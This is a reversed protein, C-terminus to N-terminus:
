QMDGTLIANLPAQAADIATKLAELRPQLERWLQPTHERMWRAKAGGHQALHATCLWCDLSDPVDAYHAPLTVRESDLFALVQADSWHWLPHRYELGDQWHDPGVGVRRDGRKAGRLVITEGAARMAGELPQWIMAACCAAYSQVLPGRPERLWSRAALTAEVPVLDSPLGQADIHEQVPRPPLVVKLRAGLADCTEEVHRRVHSFVAGTEAFYVTIRDLYPRALYLLATSDKGGSFQLAAREGAALM